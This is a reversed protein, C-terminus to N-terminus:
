PRAGEFMGNSGEFEVVEPLYGEWGCSAARSCFRRGNKYRADESTGWGCGPCPSEIGPPPVPDAATPTGGGETTPEPLEPDRFIERTERVQALKNQGPVAPVASTVSGAEGPDPDDDLDEATVFRIGLWASYSAPAPALEADGYKTAWDSLKPRSLNEDKKKKRKEVHHRGIEEHDGFRTTLTKDSWGHHGRALLWQNLDDLLDRAMVHRGPDFRIREDLYALVQDSEKRWETTDTEVRAPPPLLIRGRDYWRIAGEIAWTLAATWVRPDLKARDRLTPDGRKDLPGTLERDPDVVFTFPFKVLALRRWTGLDVEEVLPRYNTSLMLSHTADFTVGDRHIKRATIRPTGVTKKLRNVSLRRAEPTEEAVALRVGQLDMLETPHQDPNALLIRDSVLLYYDGAARGMAEMITTKGNSGSGQFIPLKDDSTMHGTLAQGMREQVWGRIDAPIAEVAQDWDPHRFGPRYEGGTIKRMMLAPDHDQVKGTALEVVGAPTNLLDPHGDLENINHEVLGRALGLVARMKGANEMAMWGTIEEKDLKGAKSGKAVVDQVKGVAWRRAAETVTVDSCEVWRHGDWALWGLGQIWCFRDALIEEAMQEALRADTFRDDTTVKAPAKPRVKKADDLLQALFLGREHEPLRGLIDDLGDNDEVKFPALDVLFADTAGAEKLLWAVQQVAGRVRKNTEHDADVVLYAVRGKAWGLRDAIGQHIGNSGNMGVVNYGDPAHSLGALQQRAGEIVLTRTNGKVHRLINPILTLGAPWEVKVPEGDKGNRRKDRDRVPIEYGRREKGNHEFPQRDSWPLLWGKGDIDDHVKAEAIAQDTIASAHLDERRWDTLDRGPLEDAPSNDKPASVERTEEEIHAPETVPRGEDNDPNPFLDKTMDTWTPM